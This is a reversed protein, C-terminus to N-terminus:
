FDENGYSSLYWVSDEHNGLDSVFLVMEPGNGMGQKIFDFAHNLAEQMQNVKKSDEQKLLDFEQKLSTFVLEEQKKKALFLKEDMWDFFPKYSEEKLIEKRKRLAEELEEVSLNQSKISKLYSFVNRMLQNTQHVVEVEKLLRYVFLEIVSLREDFPANKIRNIIEESAGEKLIREVEYDSEYKDYLELYATFDKAIEDDNIFQRVLDKQIEFGLEKYTLILKSLDEWGRATVFSLNEIDNEIHYFHESKISLYSIISGCVGHSLAYEKWVAFDEQIEIKRIRDLTAIDFEKVSKNYEPPNGAAVIIWGDPIKHTGFTKYQLFQLMTPALTESVCNIEDIFLIGKDFGTEEMYNYLSAVIESMTYETIQYEKGDYVKHSVIPLGIASQRTHHTITYSVVGVNCIKAAQEIIATKGIGPPGVLFVPRQHLIPIAWEGNEDKKTYAKVTRVIEERAKKINM